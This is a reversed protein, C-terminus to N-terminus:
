LHNIVSKKLMMGQARREMALVTVKDMGYLLGLLKVSGIDFLPLKKFSSSRFHMIHRPFSQTAPLGAPADGMLRKRRAQIRDTASIYM